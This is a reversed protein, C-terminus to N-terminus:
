RPTREGGLEAFPGDQLREAGAGRILPDMVDVARGSEGERGPRGCTDSAVDSSTLHLPAGPLVRVQAVPEPPGNPNDLADEGGVWTGRLLPDM